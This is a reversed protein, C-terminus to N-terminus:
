LSAVRFIHCLLGLIVCLRQCERSPYEQNAAYLVVHKSQTFWDDNEVPEDRHCKSRQGKREGLDRVRAWGLQSSM